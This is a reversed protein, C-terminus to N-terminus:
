SMDRKETFRLQNFDGISLDWNFDGIGSGLASKIMNVSLYPTNWYLRSGDVHDYIIFWSFFSLFVKSKRFASIIVILIIPWETDRTFFFFFWLKVLFTRFTRRSGSLNSPATSCLQRNGQCMRGKSHWKDASNHSRQTRYNNISEDPIYPRKFIVLSLFGSPKFGTFATVMRSRSTRQDTSRFLTSGAM